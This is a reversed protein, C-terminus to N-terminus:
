LKVGRDLENKVGYKEIFNNIRESSINSYVLTRGEPLQMSLEGDCGANYSFEEIFDDVPEGNFFFAIFYVEEYDYNIGNFNVRIENALDHNIKYSKVKNM